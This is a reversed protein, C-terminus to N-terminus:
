MAQTAAGQMQGGPARALICVKNGSPAKTYLPMFVTVHEAGGIPRLEEVGFPHSSILWPHASKAFGQICWCGRGPPASPSSNLNFHQASLDPQGQRPANTVYARNWPYFASM